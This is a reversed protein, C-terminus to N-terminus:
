ESEEESETPLNKTRSATIEQKKTTEPSEILQKYNVTETITNSVKNQARMQYMDEFGEIGKLMIDLKDKTEALDILNLRKTILYDKTVNNKILSKELEQDIMDKVEQYKLIRKVSAEPIKESPKWLIGLQKYNIEGNLLMTVYAKIM